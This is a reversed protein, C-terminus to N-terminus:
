AQIEAGLGDAQGNGVGEAKGGLAEWGETPLVLSRVEFGQSVQDALEFDCFDDEAKRQVHASAGADLGLARLLKRFLKALAKRQRNVQPVLTEGRCLSIADEALALHADAAAAFDDIPEGGDQNKLRKEFAAAM